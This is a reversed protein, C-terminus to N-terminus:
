FYVFLLVFGFLRCAAPGAQVSNNAFLCDEIVATSSQLYVAGFHFSGPTGSVASSVHTVSVYSLQVNSSTATIAAGSGTSNLGTIVAGTMSFTSQSINFASAALLGDCTFVAGFAVISVNVSVFSVGCNTYVGASAQIVAPTTSLLTSVYQLTRCPTQIGICTGIDVGNPAIYFTQNAYATTLLVLLLVIGNWRDM